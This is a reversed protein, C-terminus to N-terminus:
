PDSEGLRRRVCQELTERLRLARNRLTNLSIGQAAALRQRAQIRAAGDASYYALILGRTSPDTARLCESLARLVADRVLVTEIDEPAQTQASLMPDAAAGRKRAERASAEHRVMRAIGLAYAAVNDIPLGEHLKRALRELTVDALEEADIPAHLRHFQILRRRLCEYGVGASGEARLRQLLADLPACVVRDNARVIGKSM